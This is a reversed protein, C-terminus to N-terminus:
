PGRVRPRAHADAPVASARGNHAWAAGILAELVDELRDLGDLIVAQPSLGPEAVVLWEQEVHDHALEGDDTAADCRGASTVSRCRPMGRVPTFPQAEQEIM